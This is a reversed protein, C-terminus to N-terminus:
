EGIPPPITGGGGSRLIVPLWTQSVPTATASATPTATPTPPTADCAQVHMNDFFQAALSGVGNNFTGFQLRVTQGRYAALDFGESVWQQDNDLGAYLFHIAGAPPAIVMAYQLDAASAELAAQFEDLTTAALIAGLQEVSAAQAGAGAQPWRDVRLTLSPLDPLVVDQSFDSYSRRNEGADVIGTRMSWYGHSHRDLSRLASYGTTPIRWVGDYEFSRNLLLEQCPDPTATPASSPSIQWVGRGGVLLTDAIGPPALLKSGTAGNPIAGLNQWTAGRDGSRFLDPAIDFEDTPNDDFTSLYLADDAQSVILDAVPHDPAVDLWAWTDGMDRSIWLQDHRRYPPTMEYRYISLYLTDDAAVAFRRPQWPPDSAAGIPPPNTAPTWTDGGDTSRYVNAGVAYVTQNSAFHPSLAMAQAPNSFGWIPASSWSEGADDSRIVRQDALLYVRRDAAFDPSLEVKLIYAAGTLRQWSAGRDVSRYLSAGISVGSSQGAFITGDDAYNPSVALSNVNSASGGILGNNLPQWEGTRLVWIGYGGTAFLDEGAPYDPAAQLDYVYLPYFGQSRVFTEGGDRSIYVGDFTSLLLTHDVAYTPSPALRLIYSSALNTTVTVFKSADAEYRFITGNVATFLGVGDASVGIPNLYPVTLDTFRQWTLGGDDSRWIHSDFTAYAESGGPRFALDFVQTSSTVSSWTLGADSSRWVGNSTAALAVQMNTPQFGLASVSSVQDLFNWSTGSNSSRWIGGYAGGALLIRAGDQTPGVAVAMIGLPGGTELSSLQQWSDGRNSTSWLGLWFAALAYGDNRWNPSLSVDFLAGNEPGGREPWTLGGDNSRFIGQGAWSAHGLDRGGGGFVLPDAPYDPNLSLAQAPGGWPGDLDLWALSEARSPATMPTPSLLFFIALLCLAFAISGYFFILRHRM